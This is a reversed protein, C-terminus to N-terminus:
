EQSMGEKDYNSFFGKAEKRNVGISTLEFEEVTQPKPLEIEGNEYLARVAMTILEKAHLEITAGGPELKKLFGEVKKLDDKSLQVKYTMRGVVKIEM